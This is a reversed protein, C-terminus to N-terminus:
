FIFGVGIVFTLRRYSVGLDPSLGLENEGIASSGFSYILGLTVEQGAVALTSGGSLHYIDWSALTSNSGSDSPAASFDTSFAAYIQLDSEFRHELGVAANLVADLQYSTDYRITEGSSQSAFPEPELINKQGVGDFWEASLHIRSRGFRRAGGFAISFPSGYDASLGEQFDTTIETVSSGDQDVDPGVASQDLGSIGSGFLGLSPTTVTLGLKWREWDTAVGAKMLFRWHQYDFDRSAIAIGGQGGQGLGQTLAQARARHNRMAFFPSVGIGIKEGIKRSWSGGFWYERLLTEFQVGESAFRLDPISPRLIDTVDARQYVRFEADQRTLFAYGFRNKGLGKVHIEGAFLSPVLAFRGSSLNEGPGLANAFGVQEYQFVTGSLLLQPKAVLALAGPNYYLASGDTASGVVAGGLLRARNGFQTTWYHNDQAAVSTALSGAVTLTFAFRKM